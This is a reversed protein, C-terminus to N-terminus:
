VTVCRHYVLCVDNDSYNDRLQVCFTKSLRLASSLVFCDNLNQFVLRNNENNLHEVETLLRDRDHAVEDLKECNDDRSRESEALLQRLKNMQCMIM